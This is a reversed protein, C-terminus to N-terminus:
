LFLIYGPRWDLALIREMNLEKETFLLEATYCAGQCSYFYRSLEPPQWLHLQASSVEANDQKLSLPIRSTGM